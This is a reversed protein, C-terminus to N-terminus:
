DDEEKSLTWNIPVIIIGLIDRNTPRQPKSVPYIEYCMKDSKLVLFYGDRNFPVGSYLQLYM